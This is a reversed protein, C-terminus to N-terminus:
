RRMGEKTMLELIAKAIRDNTTQTPHIGDLGLGLPGVIPTSEVVRCRVATNALCAEGVGNKMANAFERPAKGGGAGESYGIYVVDKVGAEGMRNWLKILRDKIQVLRKQCNPGGRPCDAPGTILVDNGGGTMVVTSINKNARVASEFQNPIVNDTVQTGLVGYQRYRKGARRLGGQIGDGNGIMSMWSDGITIVDQGNGVGLDARPAAADPETADVEQALQDNEAFEEAGEMGEVDACGVALMTAFALGSLTWTRRKKQVMM